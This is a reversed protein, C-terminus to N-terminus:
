SWHILAKYLVGDSHREVGGKPGTCHWRRREATLPEPKQEVFKGAGLLGFRNPCKKGFPALGPLPVIKQVQIM